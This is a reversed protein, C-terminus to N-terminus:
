WQSTWTEKLLMIGRALATSKGLEEPARCSILSLGRSTFRPPKWSAGGDPFLHKGKVRLRRGSCRLDCGQLTRHGHQSIESQSRVQVYPVRSQLQSSVTFSPWYCLLSSVAFKGKRQQSLGHFVSCIQASSESPFSTVTEQLWCSSEWLWHSQLSHALSHFCCELLVKESRMACM